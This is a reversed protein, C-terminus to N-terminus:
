LGPQRSRAVRQDADHEGETGRLSIEFSPLIVSAGAAIRRVKRFFESINRLRHLVVMSMRVGVRMGLRGFDGPACLIAGHPLVRDDEAWKNEIADAPRQMPFPNWYRKTV